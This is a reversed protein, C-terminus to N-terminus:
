VVFVKHQGGLMILQMLLPVDSSFDSEAAKILTELQEKFVAQVGSIGFCGSGANNSADLPDEVRLGSGLPAAMKSSEALVGWAESENGAHAAIVDKTLDTEYGYMKLFELMARGLAAADRADAGETDAKKAGEHKETTSVQAVSDDGLEATENRSRWNSRQVSALAMMTLAYSGVGGKYVGRLGKSALVAKQVCVIPALVGNAQEAGQIFRLAAVGKHNADKLSIHVELPLGLGNPHGLGPVGYPAGPRPGPPLPPTGNSTAGDGPPVVATVAATFADYAKKSLHQPMPQFFATHTMMRILPRQASPVVSVDLVWPNTRLAMALTNLAELRREPHSSVNEPLSMSLDLNSSGPVWARTPYSGFVELGTSPFLTQAIATMARVVVDVARREKKLLYATPTFYQVHACDLLERGLKEVLKAEVEPSLPAHSRDGSVETPKTSPVKPVNIATRTPRDKDKRNGDQRQQKVDKKADKNKADKAKKGNKGQQKEEQKEKKAAPPPAAAAAAADAEMTAKLDVKPPPNRVAWGGWASQSPTGGSSPVSAEVQDSQDDDDEIATEKGIQKAVAESGQPASSGGLISAWGRLAKAGAGVVSANERAGDILQAEQASHPSPAGDSGYSRDPSKEDSSTTDADEVDDSVRLNEMTLSVPEVHAPAPATASLESPSLRGTVIAAWGSPESRPRSEEDELDEMNNNANESSHQPAAASHKPSDSKQSTRDSKQGGVRGNGVGNRRRRSEDTSAASDSVSSGKTSAKKKGVVEWEEGRQGEQSTVSASDTMMEAVLAVAQKASLALSFKKDGPFTEFEKLSRWRGLDIALDASVSRVKCQAPFPSSEGNGHGEDKSDSASAGFSSFAKPDLNIGGKSVAEFVGHLRQSSLNYLFCLTGPVIREVLGKSSSTLGFVGEEISERFTSDACVFVVGGLDSQRAVSSTLKDLDIDGGCIRHVVDSASASRM